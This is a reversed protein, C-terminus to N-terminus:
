FTAYDCKSVDELDGLFCTVSDSESQCRGCAQQDISIHYGDLENQASLPGLRSRSSSSSMLRLETNSPQLTFYVIRRNTYRM